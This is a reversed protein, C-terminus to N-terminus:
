GLMEMLRSESIIPIGLKLAKQYKTTGIEGPAAVLFSTKASVSGSVKGGNQKILTEIESRPRSMTGTLVFTKGSLTEKTESIIEETNVGAEVFRLIM